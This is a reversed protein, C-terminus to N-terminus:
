AVVQIAPVLPILAYVHPRMSALDVALKKRPKDGVYSLPKQYSYGSYNVMSVSLDYFALFM